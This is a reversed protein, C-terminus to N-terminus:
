IWYLTVNFKTNHEKECCLSYRVRGETIHIYTIITSPVSFLQPRATACHNLCRVVFWFTVPDIGSSTMWIKWQCLGELQVTARPTFAAPAYPQCGEWRLIGITKFDPLRLRRSGEPGTLAQLPIAKGKGKCQVAIDHERQITKNSSTLFCVRMSVQSLHFISDSFLLKTGNNRRIHM